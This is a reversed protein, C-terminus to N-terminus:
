FVDSMILQPTFRIDTTQFNRFGFRYQTTESIGAHVADNLRSFSVLSSHGHNKAFSQLGQSLEPHSSFVVDLIDGYPKVIYLEEKKDGALLLYEAGPKSLRWNLVDEQTLDPLLHEDRTRFSARFETQSIAKCPATKKEAVIDSKVIQYDDSCHWQLRKKFGPASKSNPFGVVALVGDHTAQSYAEEALTNFLRARRHAPHVMTTMSLAVTFTQTHNCYKQPIMAYHGVLENGQYALQVYADGDPNEQYAWAWLRPDMEHGFCQAFLELIADRHQLLTKNDHIAVFSYAKDM